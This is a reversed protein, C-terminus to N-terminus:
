DNRYAEPDIGLRRFADYLGARRMHLDKAVQSVNGKRLQLATCLQARLTADPDVKASPHQRRPEIAAPLDDPNIRDRKAARVRAAAATLVNRLQRVNGEWGGNVLRDMTAVAVIVGEDRLLHAALLPVDEIHERLPPMTVHFVALRHYLDQRFSGRQVMDALSRNTSAVVRVDVSSARDDGVPRVKADELVRLLKAQADLSLEGVEDLVLTGHNAQRFLGKRAQHSGSFAGRAHGFLESEVLDRPLGACNVPVLPGTRGSYRHLAEAAREKGTGTEGEILVPASTHAAAQLQGRVEEMKPGGLLPPEPAGPFGHFPRTDNVALLIARGVRLTAGFALATAHQSLREGRLFTGNRSGLDTVAFGASQPTVLAHLRSVKSDQVVVDASADRGIRMPGEVVIVRPCGVGETFICVLGPVPSRRHTGHGEDLNTQTATNDEIM